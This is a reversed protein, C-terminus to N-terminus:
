DPEQTTDLSNSSNAGSRLVVLARMRTPRDETAMWLTLLELTESLEHSGQNFFAEPSCGLSEALRNLLSLARPDTM